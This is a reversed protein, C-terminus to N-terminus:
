QNFKVMKLNIIILSGRRIMLLCSSYDEWKIPYGKNLYGGNKSKILENMANLSYLTNTHKKRHIRVTNPWITDFQINANEGYLNYTLVYEGQFDVNKFTFIQSKNINLTKSIKDLADYVKEKSTFSAMLLSKNM